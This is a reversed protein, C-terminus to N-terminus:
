APRRIAIPDRYKRGSRPRYSVPMVQKMVGNPREGTWFGRVGAKTGVQGSQNLRHAEAAAAVAADMAKAHRSVATLGPYGDRGVVAEYGQTVGDLVPADPFAYEKRRIDFHM